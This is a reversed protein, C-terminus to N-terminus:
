GLPGVLLIVHLGHLQGLDLLDRDRGVEVLGPGLGLAIQVVQPPQLRVEVVVALPRQALLRGPGGRRGLRQDVLSSGTSSL